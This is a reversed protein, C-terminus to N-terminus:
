KLSRKPAQHATAMTEEEEEPVAEDGITAKPVMQEVEDFLQEVFQVFVEFPQHFPIHQKQAVTSPVLQTYDILDEASM